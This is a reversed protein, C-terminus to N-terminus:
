EREGRSGVGIYVSQFSAVGLKRTTLVEIYRM